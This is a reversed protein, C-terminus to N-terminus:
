KASKRPYFRVRFRPKTLIRVVRRPASYGSIHPCKEILKLEMPGVGVGVRIDEGVEARPDERPLGNPIRAHIRTLKSCM